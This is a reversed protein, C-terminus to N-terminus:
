GHDFKEVKKTKGNACAQVQGDSVRCREEERSFEGGLGPVM